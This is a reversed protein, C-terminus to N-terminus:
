VDLEEQTAVHFMGFSGDKEPRWEGVGVGFGAINFLNIIQSPSLTSTNYRVNLTVSWKKFEARARIDATGMGVRVMDVRMTPDGDIEILDGVIHFAQRAQVKTMGDVSTCATVAAAKFAIAPFAPENGPLRYISEKFDRDLDKAEKGGRAKKQQKDLMMKMSKESWKHSILPSDGILVIEMTQIGIAPIEVAVTATGVAM